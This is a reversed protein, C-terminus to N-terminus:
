TGASCAGCASRDGYSYAMVRANEIVSDAFSGHGYAANNSAEFAQSERVRRAVIEPTMVLVRLAGSLAPYVLCAAILVAIGRDSVRRLGLVLVLGLAAYVHLVDGTWFVVAHIVGFLALILLRRLYLRTARAPERREMRAFQITFGIGFLLSFM